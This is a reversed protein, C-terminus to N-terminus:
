RLEEAPRHSKYPRGERHPRFQETGHRFGGKRIRPYIKYGNHFFTCSITDQYYNYAYVKRKYIHLFPRPIHSCKHLAANEEAKQHKKSLRSIHSYKIYFRM